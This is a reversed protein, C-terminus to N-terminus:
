HGLRSLIETIIREVQPQNIESPTATTASGQTFRNDAFISSQPTPPTVVAPEASRLDQLSRVGYGVKRINMLNLPGVNDSSSGGGVAGCGLTLAPILNTTAGIGGLAAPTNVLIRNVPKELAFQRVIEANQTHIVLTHGLGENTLLEMVRECAKHWDDAIYLGLVPCLKERAYPNKHSVSDQLAILVRTNAPVTFGALASLYIATKGVTGPNIMGNPRLLLAALQNAQDDNMFYAGQSLLERQVSEFICREVIISQESACIVGNDFTKSSVIDSVAQKIDASKEIFAPGNGPGGSITPTGSHYAAKVMAEGGTALILTVDKSQMLEQTAQLTLLSLGDVIGAPAGAEVAAQKVIEIAKQSCQQAGPHPSFIVANGAKLAILTKYFITSTPNTSPVLAAIVGLPVAVDMVQRTKDESIIGVTKLDKIHQYVQTSAFQNKLVKDQWNGFGTEECALKALSEAHLSAQNAIHQVVRDIQQQSFKAYLAQARKANKILERAQQISQLDKDLAM